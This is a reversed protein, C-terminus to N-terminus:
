DGNGSSGSAGGGSSPRGAAGETTGAQAAAATEAQRQAQAVESKVLLGDLAETSITHQKGCLLGRYRKAVDDYSDAYAFSDQSWLLLGLGDQIAAALVSSNKVRPLYIYRAFDEAM